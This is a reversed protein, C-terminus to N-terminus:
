KQPKTSRRRYANWAVAALIAVGILIPLSLLEDGDFGDGDGDAEALAVSVWSMAVLTAAAIVISWGSLHKLV